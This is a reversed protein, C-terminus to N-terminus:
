VYVLMRSCTATGAAPLNGSPSMCLCVRTDCTWLAGLSDPISPFYPGPAWFPFSYRQPWDGHQTSLSPATPDQLQIFVPDFFYYYNNQYSFNPPLLPDLVPEM